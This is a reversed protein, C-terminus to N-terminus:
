VVFSTVIVRLQSEWAFYFSGYGFAMAGGLVGGVREATKRENRLKFYHGWPLSVSAAASSFSASLATTEAVVTSRPVRGGTLIGLSRVGSTKTLDM